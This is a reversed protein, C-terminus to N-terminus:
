LARRKIPCHEVKCEVSAVANQQRLELTNQGGFVDFAQVLNKRCKDSM